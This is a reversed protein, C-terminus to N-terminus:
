SLRCVTFDKLDFMYGLNVMKTLTQLLNFYTTTIMDFCRPYSLNIL